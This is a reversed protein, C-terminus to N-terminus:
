AYQFFIKKDRASIERAAERFFGSLYMKEADEASIGRSRLYFLIHSDIEGVTAGHSAKVEDTKIELLPHIEAMAGASMKLARASFYTDSNKAEREVELMGRLDLNAKDFLAARAVVRGFTNRAKHRLHINLFVRANGEVRCLVVVEARSEEGKLVVELDIKKKIEGRALLFLDLRERKGVLVITKKGERIKHLYIIKQMKEM